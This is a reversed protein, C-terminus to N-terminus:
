DAIVGLDFLRPSTRYFGTQGSVGVLYRADPPFRGPLQPNIQIWDM